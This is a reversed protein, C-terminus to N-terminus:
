PVATDGRRTGRGMAGIPAQRRQACFPGHGGGHRCKKEAVAVSLSLSFDEVIKPEEGM